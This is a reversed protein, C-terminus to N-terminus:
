SLLHTFYELGDVKEYVDLAHRKLRRMSEKPIDVGVIAAVIKFLLVLKQAQTEPAVHDGDERKKDIAVIDNIIDDIYKNRKEM